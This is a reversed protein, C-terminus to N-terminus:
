GQEIMPLLEGSARTRLELRGSTADCRAGAVYLPNIGWRAGVDRPVDLQVWMGVPLRGAPWVAGSAEVMRGGRWMPLNAVATGTPKSAEAAVVLVLRRDVMATLRAGSAMGADLLKELEALGSRDNDIWQNREVGTTVVEAGTVFGQGCESVVRAMSLSTDEADWVKFPVSVAGSPLWSLSSWALNNWAKTGGYAGGVLAALYYNMEDNAGGRALVLWYTSGAVVTVGTGWTSWVWDTSGDELDAAAVTATDIWTGPDGGSDSYLKVYLADVPSGVKGAKVAVRDLTMTAPAVFSQGLQFGVLQVTVSAADGPAENATAATVGVKNGQRITTSLGTNENVVTATFSQKTTMYGDDPKGDIAHYGGNLPAGPGSIHVFAQTEFRGFGNGADYIDDNSLFSITNATLSVAERNTNEAVYWEGDNHDSGTVIFKDGAHLGGLGAGVDHIATEFFGIESSTLEWGISMEAADDGDNEIRGVLNKYYLWDLFRYFGVCRVVAEATTASLVPEIVPQALQGVLGARVGNAMSESSDGASFLLEKIGWVAQSEADDLWALRQQTSAGRADAESYVVAVRNAMKELSLRLGYEGLGLTVEVAQGDWVVDAVDNLIQVRRGLLALASAMEEAHGRVVFTAEGAGGRDSADFERVEIEVGVPLAADVDTFHVRMM